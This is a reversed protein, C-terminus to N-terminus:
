TSPISGSVRHLSTHAILVMYHPFQCHVSCYGGMCNLNNCFNVMMNSLEDKVPSKQRQISSIFLRGPGEPWDLLDRFYFVILRQQYTPEFEAYRARITDLLGHKTQRSIIDMPLVGTEDIHQLPTGYIQYLQRTVEGIIIEVPTVLLPWPPIDIM